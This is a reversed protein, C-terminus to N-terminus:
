RGPSFLSSPTLSSVWFFKGSFKKQPKQSSSRLSPDVTLALSTLLAETSAAGRNKRRVSGTVQATVLSACPVGIGAPDRTIEPRQLNGPCHPFWSGSLLNEFTPGEGGSIEM